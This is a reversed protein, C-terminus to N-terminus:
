AERVVIQQKYRAHTNPGLVEEAFVSIIAVLVFTVVAFYFSFQFSLASGFIAIFVGAIPAGLASGLFRFVANMSTALGSKTRDISLLLSNTNPINLSSLGMGVIAAAAILQIASTSTAAVIFGVIAVAAGFLYFPKTGFRSIFRGVLPATILSMIAFPMMSLGTVFISDGYGSPGPTEFQYAFTQYALFFGLGIVFVILNASLVNRIRLLKIDLIAHDLRREFRDLAVFGVLPIIILALITPSTWGLTAGDSLGFVLMGLFIAMGIAGVYDIKVGPQTHKSERVFLYILIAFLAVFPVATHYTTQWGFTNSVLSGIPLGIAAGAGFMAGVIGIAQPVKDRPFQEQILSVALPFITLGIGQITRLILLIPFTPAFGTMAVAVTYAALVRVLVKKKGYIDGLKGIIPNLAVGSVLYLSLVLSVQAADVGFQKSISPLSPILMTEIYMVIIVFCAFLLLSKNAYSKDFNDGDM